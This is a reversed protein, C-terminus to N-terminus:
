RKSDEIEMRRLYDAEGGFEKAQYLSYHLEKMINLTTQHYVSDNIRRNKKRLRESSSEGSCSCLIISLLFLQKM